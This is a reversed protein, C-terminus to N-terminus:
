RHNHVLVPLATNAEIRANIKQIEVAQDKVSATLIAIEKKLAAIVASQAQVTKHEKLFENLLMANIQEYRVSEPEGTKNRGVLDPAIDAVEEAILGFSPREAPDYEKNYRFSVPKLALIVESAKDMPHIDHKFRRSSGNLNSRGIRGNSSITVYDPDIGNVPQPNSYINAIYCSNDINEGGVSGICIVNSATTVNFGANEGAGTNGSGTNNNGLANHGIATNSFGSTNVSLAGVGAGTNNSGDTNNILAQDGVATNQSGETNGSLTFAGLATNEDGTAKSGDRLMFNGGLALFGAATNFSGSNNLNLAG